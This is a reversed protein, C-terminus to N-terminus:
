ASTSGELCSILAGELEPYKFKFGANEIKESSVTSGMIVADAFEGLVIHLMFGPVPPFILPKELIRAIAKTM